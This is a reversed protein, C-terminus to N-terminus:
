RALLKPIFHFSVESQATQLNNFITALSPISGGVGAKEPSREVLQAVQGSSDNYCVRESPRCCRERGCDTWLTSRESASAIRREREVWCRVVVTLIWRSRLDPAVAADRRGGGAHQQLEVADVLAGAVSVGGPLLHARWPRERGCFDFNDSRRLRETVGM